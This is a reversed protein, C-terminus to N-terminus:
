NYVNEIVMKPKGNAGVQFSVDCEFVQGVDSAKIQNFINDNEFWTQCVNFGKRNTSEKLDTIAYDLVSKKGDKSRGVGLILVELKTDM